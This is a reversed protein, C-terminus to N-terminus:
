RDIVDYLAYLITLAAPNAVYQAKVEAPFRNWYIDQNHRLLGWSTAISQSNNVDIVADHVIYIKYGTLTVNTDETLVEWPADPDAIVAAISRGVMSYAPLPTKGDAGATLNTDDIYNTTLPVIGDAKYSHAPNHNTAQTVKIGLSTAEPM